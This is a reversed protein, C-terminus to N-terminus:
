IEGERSVLKGELFERLLLNSIARGYYAGHKAPYLSEYLKPIGRYGQFKKLVEKERSVHKNSWDEGTRAFKVVIKKGDKEGVFVPCSSFCQLMWNSSLNEINNYGMKRLLCECRKDVEIENM